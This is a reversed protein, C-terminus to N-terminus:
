FYSITVGADFSTSQTTTGTPLSVSTLNNSAFASSGVSNLSAPFTISAINNDRFVNATISTLTDPLTVETLDNSRFSSLGFSVNRPINIATLNNYQFAYHDIIRLTTPITVATLSKSEFAHTGISHVRVGGLTAPIVVERPCAPNAGNNNENSYYDTIRRMTPESPSADHAFCAEATSDLTCEGTKISGDQTVYFTTTLGDLRGTLCYGASSYIYDLTSDDGVEDSFGAAALSNPFRSHEAKYLAIKNGAGHLESQILSEKSKATIGNYAVIVIAALIAIVVVVILLEVITFGTQKRLKTHPMNPNLKGYASNM